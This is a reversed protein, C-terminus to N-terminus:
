QGGVGSVGGSGKPLPGKTVGESNNLFRNILFGGIFGIILFIWRQNKNNKLDEECIELDNECDRAEIVCQRNNDEIDSYDNKLEELDKNCSEREVPCNQINELQSEIRVKETECESYQKFYDTESNYTDILDIIDEDLEELTESINNWHNNCTDDLEADLDRYLIFEWSDMITVNDIYPIGYSKEAGNENEIVVTENNIEIDIEIEIETLEALAGPVILIMLVLGILIFKKM